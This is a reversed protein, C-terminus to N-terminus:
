NVPLEFLLYEGCVCELYIETYYEPFSDKQTLIKQKSGCCACEQIYAERYGESIEEINM